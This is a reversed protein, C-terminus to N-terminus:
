KPRLTEDDVEFGWAEAAWRLVDAETEVIEDPEAVDVALNYILRQAEPRQVAKVAKKIAEFNTIEAEARKRAEIFEARGMADAIKLLAQSEEASMTSDASVTLKLLGMLAVREDATLDKADM